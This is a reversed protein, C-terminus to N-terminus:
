GGTAPISIHLVESGDLWTVGTGSASLPGSLDGIATPECAVLGCGFLEGQYSWFLRGSANQLQGAGSGPGDQSAITDVDSGDLSARALTLQDASAELWFLGSDHTTLSSPDRGELLIETGGGAATSTRGIDGSPRAVFYLDPGVVGAPIVQSAEEPITHERFDGGGIAVSVLHEAVPISDGWRQTWYVRDGAVLLSRPSVALDADPEVFIDVPNSGDHEVQLLSGGRLFVFENTAGLRNFATSVSVTSIDGNDLSVRIVGASGLVFAAEDAAVLLSAGPVFGLSSPECFGETCTASLCSHGCGGCNNPDSQFDPACAGDVCEDYDCPGDPGTEGQGTSSTLISTSASTTSAEGSSPEDDGSVGAGSSGNGTVPSLTTTAEGGSSSGSGTPPPAVGPSFCGGISIVLVVAPKGM